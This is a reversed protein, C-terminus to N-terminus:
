GADQQAQDEGDIVLDVLPLVRHGLQQTLAIQAHQRRLPGWVELIRNIM